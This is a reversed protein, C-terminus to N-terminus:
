GDVGRQGLRTTAEPEPKLLEMLLGLRVGSRAMDIRTVDAAAAVAAVIAIGAPLVRARSEAIGLKDALENASLAT